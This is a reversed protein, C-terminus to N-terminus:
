SQIGRLVDEKNLPYLVSIWFRESCSAHIEFVSTAHIAHFQLSLLQSEYLSVLRRINTTLHLQCDLVYM